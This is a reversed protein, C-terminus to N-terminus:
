GALQLIRFEVLDRLSIIGEIKRDEIVPMHRFHREAMIKMVDM